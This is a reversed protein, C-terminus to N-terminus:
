IAKYRGGPLAQVLGKIEMVTLLALVEQALLGTSQAIDDPLAESLELLSSYIQAELGELAVKTRPQAQVGLAMLVDGSSLVLGAGDQILRNTGVSLVDGPRGPVALVDRGLELAFRATILAGSKEGAEVVLVAQALAAVIRNRRPFLEAMPPTGLAFESVLHMQDALVRNEAPYIKDIASGLVGLTYGGVELAAKHAHTDIGRALGSIIGIGAEALERALTSTWGAAWPTAQRTGVIAISRQTPLSGKYYLVAPPAGLQRLNQPYSDQWCGVLSIGLQEAKKRELAAADQQLIKEYSAAIGSGFLQRISEPSLDTSLAQQLRKPGVQPTLALALPDYM